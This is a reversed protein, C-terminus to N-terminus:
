PTTAKSAVPLALLMSSFGSLGLLVEIVVLHHVDGLGDLRAGPALEFDGGDVLGIQIQALEVHLDHLAAVGPEVGARMVAQEFGALEDGRQLV